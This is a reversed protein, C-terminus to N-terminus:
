QRGGGTVPRTDPPLGDRAGRELETRLKKKARHLRVSVVDAGVGLVLAIERPALEEWAWLRLLEADRAPLRALAAGVDHGLDPGGADPGELVQRPPDLVRLREVLRFGRRRSREANALCHRAVGISWAVAAEPPVEPLRRWCVLLVENLVDDATAADTRRALYRRVPEVVERTM